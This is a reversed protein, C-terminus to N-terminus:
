VFLAKKWTFSIKKILFYVYRYRSSHSKLFILEIINLKKKEAILQCYVNIVILKIRAYIM